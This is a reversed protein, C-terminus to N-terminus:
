SRFPCEEAREAQILFRTAHAVFFGERRIVEDLASLRDRYRDISFDPVIWIVLRLFYVIAGIDYFVTRLRATHLDHVRLGAAEASSRALVPDRSSGPPQPGMLVEILEGVSHPGVQQSLFTGGPRLVRAIEDWWTEVPHRASVLDFTGDAFPLDPRDDDAGVVFIGRPRLRAAARLLNPPWAETAVALPPFARIKSLVEGGGTQLDLSASSRRMRDALLESYHWPPREETARGALWSFDWGNIPANAAEDILDDFSRNVERITERKLSRRKGGPYAMRVSFTLVDPTSKLATRLRRVQDRSEQVAVTVAQLPPWPM